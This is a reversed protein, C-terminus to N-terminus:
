RGGEGPRGSPTGDPEAGDLDGWGVVFTTQRGCEECFEPGAEEGEESDDWIVEYDEVVGPSHGCEPCAGSVSELCRLRRDLSM